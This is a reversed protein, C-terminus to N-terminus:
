VFTIVRSPEPPKPQLHSVPEPAGPASSGHRCVSGGSWGRGQPLALLPCLPELLELGAVSIRGRALRPRSTQKGTCFLGTRNREYSFSRHLPRVPHQNLAAGGNCSSSRRATKRGPRLRTQGKSRHRELVRCKKRGHFYTHTHTHVSIHTYTYIHGAENKTKALCTGCLFM